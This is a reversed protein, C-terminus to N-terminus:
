LARGAGPFAGHESAGSRARITVPDNDDLETLV